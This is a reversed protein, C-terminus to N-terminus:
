NHTRKISTESYYIKITDLIFAPKNILSYTFCFPPMCQFFNKISPILGDHQRVLGVQVAILPIHYPM